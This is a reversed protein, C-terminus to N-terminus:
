LWKGTKQKKGALIVLLVSVVTVSAAAGILWGRTKPSRFDRERASTANREAVALEAAEPSGPVLPPALYSAAQITAQDLQQRVVDLSQPPALPSSPTTTTATAATTTATSPAPTTPSASSSAGVAAVAALLSGKDIELTGFGNEASCLKLPVAYQKAVSCLDEARPLPPISPTPATAAALRPSSTPSSSPDQAVAVMSHCPLLLLLLLLSIFYSSKKDSPSSFLSAAM